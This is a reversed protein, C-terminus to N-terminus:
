KAGELLARARDLAADILDWRRADTAAVLDRLIAHAADRERRVTTYRKEWYVREELDSAAQEALSPRYSGGGLDKGNVQADLEDREAVLRRICAAAKAGWYGESEGGGDLTDALALAEGVGADLTTPQPPNAGEAAARLSSLWPTM